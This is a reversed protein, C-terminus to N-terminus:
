TYVSPYDLYDGQAIPVWADGGTYPQSYLWSAPVVAEASNGVIATVGNFLNFIGRKRTNHYSVVNQENYAGGDAGVYVFSVFEGNAFYVLYAETIILIGNGFPIANVYAAATETYPVVIPNPIFDYYNNNWYIRFHGPITTTIFPANQNIDNAVVVVPNSASDFRLAFLPFYNYGGMVSGLDLNYNYNTNSNSNSIYIALYTPATVTVSGITRAGAFNFGGYSFTPPQNGVNAASGVLLVTNTVFNYTYTNISSSYEIVIIVENHGIYGVTRVIGLFASLNSILISGKKADILYINQGLQNQSTYVYDPMWPASVIVVLGNGVYDWSDAVGGLLTYNVFFLKDSSLIASNSDFTAISNLPGLQSITPTGDGALIYVPYQTKYSGFYAPENPIPLKSTEYNSKSYIDLYTQGYEHTAICEVGPALTYKKKSVQINYANDELLHVYLIARARNIHAAGTNYNGHVRIKPDAQIFLPKSM